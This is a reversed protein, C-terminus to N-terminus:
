YQKLGHYSMGNRTYTDSTTVTTGSGVLKAILLRLEECRDERSQREGDLSPKRTGTGGAYTQRRSADNCRNLLYSYYLSVLWVIM